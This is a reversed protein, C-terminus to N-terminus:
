FVFMNAQIFLTSKNNIGRRSNFIGEKCGNLLSLIVNLNFM